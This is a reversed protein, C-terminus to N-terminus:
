AADVIGWDSNMLLLNQMDLQQETLTFIKEM